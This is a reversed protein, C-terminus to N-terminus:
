NKETEELTAALTANELADASERIVSGVGYGSLRSIERVMSEIEGALFVRRVAEVPTACDLKDEWWETTRLTPCACLVFNADQDEERRCTKIQRYSLGKLPLELGLRPVTVSCTEPQAPELALLRELLDAM